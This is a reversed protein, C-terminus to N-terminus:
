RAQAPRLREDALDLRYMVQNYDYRPTPTVPGAFTQSYTGQLYIVRGGDRDLFDHHVPNYFTMKDHSIIKVADRWPGEPAPAEAYWIEGLLSTTGFQQGVIMVYAQRYNNWRVSGNHALIAEGTAADRLAFPLADRELRGAKALEALEKAGLPATERKWGWDGLPTTEAGSWRGGPPLPTYAEWAAPDSYGEFTAPARLMPYATAFYLWDGVRFAQGQPHNPLDLPITRVTRFTETQDDFGCIGREYVEGLGERRDYVGVLRARGTADPVVAIAGIWIVGRETHPMMERSFGTQDIFYDHGYGADPDIDLPTTAGSMRFQGLPYGPRATDGWFWFVRGNYVAAFVSDQGMVLGPLRGTRPTAEGLLESDRYIGAGTLRYLREAINLRRVRVEARWGATLRLRVGRYGFGDAPLEYGHGHLGFWVEEGLLEPELIAAWGASDTVYVTENTLRLEILPVGRGTAEDVVHIGFWDAPPAVVLAVLIATM